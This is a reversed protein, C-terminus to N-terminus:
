IMVMMIMVLHFIKLKANFVTHWPSSQLFRVSLVIFDCCLIEDEEVDDDDTNDDDADIDNIQGQQIPTNAIQILLQLRKKSIALRLHMWKAPFSVIEFIM